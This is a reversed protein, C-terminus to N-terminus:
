LFLTIYIPNHALIIVKLINKSYSNFCDLDLQFKWSICHDVLNKFANILHQKLYNFDETRAEIDDDNIYPSTFFSPQIYNLRRSDFDRFANILNRKHTQLQYTAEIFYYEYQAEYDNINLLPAIQM